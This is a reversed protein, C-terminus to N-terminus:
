AQDPAWEPRYNPHSAYPLALLRLVSTVHADRGCSCDQPVGAMGRAWEEAPMVKPCGYEDRGDWAYHPMAELQGIVKRKATVEALIRAPDHRAIHAALGSERADLGRWHKDQEYPTHHEPPWMLVTEADTWDPDDSHPGQHWNLPTGTGRAPAEDENLRARLFQVLDEMGWQPEFVVEKVALDRM